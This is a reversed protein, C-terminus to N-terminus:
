EMEVIMAVAEGGGLCVAALGTSAQRRALAHLLTVLIRAGSCGIPHGLAIAGGHVNVREWDLGLLAGGALVQSAFAENLEILDVDGLAMGARELVRRVAYVPAIFLDSPAVAAQGYAVISAMPTCGLARARERSTIVMAAAGDALCSANGATVRGEAVFAPRLQALRERSTDARPCEDTALCEGDRGGLAVPVMESDFAGCDMAALARQHSQLAYADMAERTIGHREAVADALVGMHRDETACWLGDHVAVDLLRGHGLRYGSRARPLVYPASNMSEMGGAVAVGIDGCRVMAAALMAAKLGSGCVKNLTTAGVSPPLGAHLAAQRAPAQGAGAQLVQGMLVEDVDAGDVGARRISEAIVIAGLRAAPIDRLAGQFRGIPTRVAGAIVVDDDRHM